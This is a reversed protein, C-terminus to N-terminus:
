EDKGGKAGHPIYINKTIRVEEKNQNPFVILKIQVQQPLYKLDWKDEFRYEKENGGSEYGFSFKLSNKKVNMALVEFGGGGESDESLFNLFDKEERVFYSIKELEKKRLDVRQNAKYTKGVLTAYIQDEQPDKLYYKVRKMGGETMVIFEIKDEGGRFAQKQSDANSFDFGIMNELELSLLDLSWTIERYVKNSLESRHSLRVGSSFVSFVTLAILSFISLGLLLEILTFAKNTTKM